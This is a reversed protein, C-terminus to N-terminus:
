HKAVTTISITACPAIWSIINSEQSAVTIGKFTMTSDIQKWNSCTVNSEDIWYIATGNTITIGEPDLFTEGESYSNYTLTLTGTGNHDDINGSL